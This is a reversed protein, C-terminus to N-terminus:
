GPGTEDAPPPAPPQYPTYWWWDAREGTPGTCPAVQPPPRDPPRALSGPHLRDGNRDSVTLNDPTGSITILGRHHLRHHYPASWYWTTSTPPAATNGTGSTIPMCVVPPGAVPCRAPGTATNWPVACGVASRGPTARPELKTATRLRSAM